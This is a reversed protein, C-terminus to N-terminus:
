QRPEAADTESARKSWRRSEALSVSLGHTGQAYARSLEKMARVEGLHAAQRLWLGKDEREDELEFVAYAAAGVRLAAAELWERALELDRDVGRGDRYALGLEYRALAHGREAARRFWTFATEPDATTTIGDRHYRGLAFMAERVGDDAAEQYLAFATAHDGRVEARCADRFADGAQRAVATGSPGALVLLLLLLLL